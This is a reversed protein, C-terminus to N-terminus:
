DLRVMSKLFSMTQEDQGLRVTLRDDEGPTPGLVTVRQGDSILSGPRVRDAPLSLRGTTPFTRSNNSTSM